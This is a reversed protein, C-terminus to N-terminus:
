QVVITTECTTSSGNSGMATMKYTTTQTPSFWKFDSPVNIAGIGQDISASASNDSWWWLATGQGATITQPDAGISCVPTPVTASDVIVRTNCSTTSGDTGVANMTYTTTETPSLWVYNQNSGINVGNIHSSAVNDTWWWLATGEGVTINQPDVGVECAPPNTTPPNTTANSSSELCLTLVSELINWAEANGVGTTSAGILGFRPDNPDSIRDTMIKQDILTTAFSKDDLLIALRALLAYIRAEGNLLNQDNPVLCGNPVNPSTCQAVELGKFTFYEPIRNNISYFNKFFALSNKAATLALSRKQQDLLSPDLQSARALHLAIWLTQITKLHKGQNTDRNEFDGTWTDNAQYGNYFLGSVFPIESELLLNTASSLLTLWRPNMKAAEGIVYLDNYDVPIPDTTLKGIGTAIAPPTLLADTTGNWDWAYGVLGDPYIPFQLATKHDRDTVTTWYLGTLLKEALQKAGPITATFSSEIIGRIVRFDDLPANSNNWGDDLSVLPKYRDRDIAWNVLNYVPDVMVENVYQYSQQYATTDGMCASARLMLGMHEATVHHGHAYIETLGSNNILNTYIGYSLPPTQNSHRMSNKIFNLGSEAAVKRENNLWNLAPREAAPTAAQPSLKLEILSFQDVTLDIKYVQEASRTVPLVGAQGNNNPTAVSASDVKFGDPARYFISIQQPSSVIPQKLGSYNLVYLFHKSDSQKGIEIHIGDITNVVLEERVHIKILQEATSYVENAKNINGVSAFADSGRVSPNYIAVGKGLTNTREISSTGAPFNFLDKLISNPRANGMEDLTGPLEGTAFVTGGNNVFSKILNATSDSMAAVSPLWLFEIGALQEAPNGPDNIIKFPIHSKILTHAAGRYGGLHPKPVLSDAPETAWWHPDNTPPTTTTYMGYQGGVKFDLFDRTHSSYWIGVKASRPTNLLAQQHDRVFGFWKSRFHTDITKTMDPTKSEFPSVGVTLAAGMTLGADLPQFGYTFAWSPNERDVGRAWKYMTIKNSFEEVSSWSMAQTNSVSDIEWVHLFNDTSLRYNGDLGAETADMYDAPFNEVLVIFNPNVQHAAIRVDEIFSALNEHRWRIWTRFRPTDEVVTPTIYGNGNNFGKAKSWALFATKAAPEAGSWLSGTGLYIPVDMWIGDLGTAALRKVRDIFYQKYGTNPSLWASEAKPEVWVEQSGYFVNPSGNIGKQIWGPHDKFMTNPVTEGNPTIVELAPFYVVSRLNKNKAATVVRNLFTIQNQFQADNLYRSLGSDVELVSVNETVRTNILSNIEQDTMEIWADFGGTRALRAWDPINSTAAPSLSPFLCLFTLFVIPLGIKNKM